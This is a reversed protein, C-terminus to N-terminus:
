SVAGKSSNKLGIKSGTFDASKFNYMSEKATEEEELLTLTLMSLKYSSTVGGSKMLKTIVSIPKKGHVATGAMM